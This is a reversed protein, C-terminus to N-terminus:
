PITGGTEAWAYAMAMCVLLASAILGVLYAPPM